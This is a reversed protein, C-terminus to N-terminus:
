QCRSAARWFSRAAPRSVNIRASYGSPWSGIPPRIQVSGLLSPPIIVSRLIVQGSSQEPWRPLGPVRATRLRGRSMRAVPPAGYRAYFVGEVM